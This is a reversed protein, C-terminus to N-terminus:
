YNYVRPFSCIDFCAFRGWRIFCFERGSVDRHSLCTVLYIFFICLISAIFLLEKYSFFYLITPQSTRPTLSICNLFSLWFPGPQSPSVATFVSPFPLFGHLHRSSFCTWLGGPLSINATNLSLSSALSISCYSPLLWLPHLRLLRSWPPAVQTTVYSGMSGLAEYQTQHKATAMKFHKGTKNNFKHKKLSSQHPFPVHM